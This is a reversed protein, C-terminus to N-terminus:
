IVPRWFMWPFHTKYSFSYMSEFAKWWLLSIKWEIEWQSRFLKSDGLVTIPFCCIRFTILIISQILLHIFIAEFVGKREGGHQGLTCNNPDRGSHYVGSHLIISDSMLSDSLFFYHYIIFINWHISEQSVYRYEEIDGIFPIFISHCIHWTQTYACEHTNKPFIHALLM